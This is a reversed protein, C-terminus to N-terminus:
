TKGIVYYTLSSMFFTFHCILLRRRLLRNGYLDILESSGTKVAKFINTVGNGGSAQSSSNKFKKPILYWEAIFVKVSDARVKKVKKLEFYEHDDMKKRFVIKYAEIIKGKSM